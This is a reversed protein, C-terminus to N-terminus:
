TIVSSCISWSTSRSARASSSTVGARLSAALDHGTREIKGAADRDCGAGIAADAQAHGEPERRSPCLNGDDPTTGVLVLSGHRLDCLRGALRHRDFSVDHLLVIAAPQNALGAM